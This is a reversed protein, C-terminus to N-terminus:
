SPMGVTPLYAFHTLSLTYGYENEAANTELPLKVPQDKEINPRGNGLALLPMDWVMGANDKALILNYEVDPNNRVAAVAAVTTFYAEVEGSVAFDGFSASFGGFVGVAGLKSVGNNINISAESVYAFLAANNITGGAERIAIRSRYVNSSTNFADEGLADTRTGAKVGELGTRQENDMAVFSVDVTAKDEM